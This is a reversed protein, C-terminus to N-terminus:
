ICNCSKSHWSQSDCSRRCCCCPSIHAWLLLQVFDDISIRENVSAPPRLQSNGSGSRLRSTSPRLKTSTEPQSSSCKAFLQSLENPSWTEGLLKLGARVEDLTIYGDGDLDFVCFAAKLDNRAEEDAQANRLSSSSSSASSTRNAALRLQDVRSESGSATSDCLFNNNSGSGLFFVGGVPPQTNNGSSLSRMLALGSGSGRRGRSVENPQRAM